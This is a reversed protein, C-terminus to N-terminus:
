LEVLQHRAQLFVGLVVSDSYSLWVHEGSLGQWQDLKGLRDIAVELYLEVLRQRWILERIWVESQTVVDETIVLCLGVFLQLYQLVSTTM